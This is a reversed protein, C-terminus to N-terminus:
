TAHIQFATPIAILHVRPSKAFMSLATVTATPSALTQFETQTATQHEAQSKARTQFATTTVTQKVLISCAMSIAIQHAALSTASTMSETETVTLHEAQLFSARIQLAMPTATLILDQQSKMTMQFDTQM